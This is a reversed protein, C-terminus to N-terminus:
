RFVDEQNQSNENPKWSFSFFDFFSKLNSNSSASTSPAVDSDSRAKGPPYAPFNFLTRPGVACSPSSFSFIQNKNNKTEGSKENKAIESLDTISPRSFLTSQSHQNLSNEGLVKRLKPIENNFNKERKSLSLFLNMTASESHNPPSLRANKLSESKYEEVQFYSEKILSQDSDSVSCRVSKKTNEDLSTASRCRFVQNQAGEPSSEMQM